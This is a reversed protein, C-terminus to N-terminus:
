FVAAVQQSLLRSYLHFQKFRNHDHRYQGTGQAQTSTGLLLLRHRSARSTRRGTVRLLELRADTSFKLGLGPRETPRAKEM